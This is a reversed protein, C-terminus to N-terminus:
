VPLPSLFDRLFEYAYICVLTLITCQRLEMVVYCISYAIGAFYVMPSEEPHSMVKPQMELLM